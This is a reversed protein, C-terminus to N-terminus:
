LIPRVNLKRELRRNWFDLRVVYRNLYSKLPILFM